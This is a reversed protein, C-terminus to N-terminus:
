GNSSRFSRQIAAVTSGCINSPLPSGKWRIPHLTRWEHADKLTAGITEIRIRLDRLAEARIAEIGRHSNAEVFARWDDQPEVKYAWLLVPSDPSIEKNPPSSRVIADAIARSEYLWLPAGKWAGLNELIEAEPIARLYCVFERSVKSWGLCQIADPLLEEAHEIALRGWETNISSAANSTRIWHRCLAIAEAEGLESFYGMDYVAAYASPHRAPQRLYGVAGSGLSSLYHRALPDTEAEKIHLELIQWAEKSIPGIPDTFQDGESREAPPGFVDELLFVGHARSSQTGGFLLFSILLLLFPRATNM